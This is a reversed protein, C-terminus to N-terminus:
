RNWMEQARHTTRSMYLHWLCFFTVNGTELAEQDPLASLSSLVFSSEKTRKPELLIGYVNFSLCENRMTRSAPLTLDLPSCIQRRTLCRKKAQLHGDEETDECPLSLSRALEPTEEEM